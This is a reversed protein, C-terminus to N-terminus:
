GKKGLLQFLRPANEIIFDVVWDPAIDRGPLKDEVLKAVELRLDQTQAECMSPHEQGDETKFFTKSVRKIKGM